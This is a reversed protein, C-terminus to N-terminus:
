KDGSSCGVSKIMWAVLTPSTAVTSFHRSAPPAHDVARPVTPELTDHEDRAAVPVRVEDPQEDLATPCDVLRACTAGIPLSIPRRQM